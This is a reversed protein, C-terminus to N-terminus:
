SELLPRLAGELRAVERKVDEGAADVGALDEQRAAQELRRAAEYAGAKSFLGASGKLAHAAAAIAGAKRAAIAVDLAAIQKPADDLFVAVVERLLTESGGVSSLLAPRDILPPPNASPEAPATSPVAAAVSPEDRTERPVSRRQADAACVGDITALLTEARLPKSVYGDMGAALCRERDGAMAHATMAVIPTHVGTEREHARIAETAEFGSMEPMQVDMLIIDFTEAAAKEVAQRGDSVTTVHHGRGELLLVVLKQNTPNDEAVLVRLARQSAAPRVPSRRGRPRVLSAGPVFANLIADLLDSHKVPKVLQASINAARARGQPLGASTLMIVRVGSLRRDAKIQRALTFGDVDPMLADTLVLHYPRGADTARSLEFLAARASEVSAARMQWSNLM